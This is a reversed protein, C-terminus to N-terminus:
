IYGTGEVTGSQVVYQKATLKYGGDVQESRLTSQHHGQGTLGVLSDQRETSSTEVESVPPSELDLSNELICWGPSM